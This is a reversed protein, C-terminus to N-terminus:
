ASSFGIVFHRLYYIMEANQQSEVSLAALMSGRGSRWFVRELAGVSVPVGLASFFPAAAVSSREVALM